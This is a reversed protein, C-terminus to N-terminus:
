RSGQPSILQVFIDFEGYELCCPFQDVEPGPPEDIEVLTVVGIRGAPGVDLDPAFVARPGTLAISWLYGGAEDLALVFGDGWEPEISLEEVGPGPDFDTLEYFRGSLFIEGDNTFDPSIALCTVFLNTLGSNSPAWLSGSDTSKYVGWFTAAFITGDQGYDPSFCLDTMM